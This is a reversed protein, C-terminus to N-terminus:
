ALPPGSPLLFMFFTLAMIAQLSRSLSHVPEYGTAGHQNVREVTEPGDVTTAGLAEAAAAFGWLGYVKWGVIAISGLRRERKDMDNGVEWLYSDDENKSTIIAGYKKHCAWVILM